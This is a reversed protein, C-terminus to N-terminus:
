GGITAPNTWYELYNKVHWKNSLGHTFASYAAYPQTKAIFTLTEVDNSWECVKSKIYHQIFEKTGIAAGLYPRGESTVNVNTGEFPAVAASHYGQAERVYKTGGGKYATLRVLVRPMM